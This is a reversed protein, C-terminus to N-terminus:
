PVVAVEREENGRRVVLRVTKGPAAWLSSCIADMSAGECPQGDISLLLDAVRVGARDARTGNFVERVRPLSAHVLSAIDAAASPKRAERAAVEADPALLLLGLFEGSPPVIWSGDETRKMAAGPELELKREALDFGVRACALLAGAGVLGDPSGTGEMQGLGIMVWPREFTIPGLTFADLRVLLEEGAVGEIGRMRVPIAGRAIWTERDGPLKARAIGRASIRLCPAFGTDLLMTLRQDSGPLTVAVTGLTEGYGLPTFPLEIVAAAKRAEHNPLEGLPLVPRARRFLTSGALDLVPACEMLRLGGLTVAPQKSLPIEPFLPHWAICAPLQVLRHGGLDLSEVWTRTVRADGAGGTVTTISLPPLPVLSAAQPQVSLGSGGTDIQGTCPIKDNIRVDPLLFAASGPVATRVLQLRSLLKLPPLGAAPSGAFLESPHKQGTRIDRLTLIAVEDHKRSGSVRVTPLVVPGFPKWAGFRKWRYDEPGEEYMGHLRGDGPDFGLVWTSDAPTTVRAGACEIRDVIGEPGGAVDPLRIPQQYWAEVRDLYAFSAFFAWDLLAIAGTNPMPQSKGDPRLEWAYAGDSVFVSSPDGAHEYEERIAFPVRRIWARFAVPARGEEFTGELYLDGAQAVAARGGFSAEHKRLIEAHRLSDAAVQIPVPSWLLLLSPLVGAIRV